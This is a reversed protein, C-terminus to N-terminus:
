LYIELVHFQQSIPQSEMSKLDSLVAPLGKNNYLVQRKNLDGCLTNKCM